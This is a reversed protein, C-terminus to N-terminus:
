RAKMEGSIKMRKDSRNREILDALEERFGLEESSPPGSDPTSVTPGEPPPLMGPPPEITGFSYKLTDVFEKCEPRDVWYRDYAADELWM